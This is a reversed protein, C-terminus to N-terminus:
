TRSVSPCIDHKHARNHHSIDHRPLQSPLQAAAAGAPAQFIQKSKELYGNVNCTHRRKTASMTDCTNDFGRICVRVCESVWVCVCVCVWGGM